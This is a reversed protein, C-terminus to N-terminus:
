IYKTRGLFLVILNQEFHTKMPRVGTTRFAHGPAEITMVYISYYTLPTLGCSLCRSYVSLKILVMSLGYVQIDELTFIANM